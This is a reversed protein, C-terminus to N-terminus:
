FKHELRVYVQRGYGDYLNFNFPRTNDSVLQPLKGEINVAGLMIKSGKIPPMWSVQLDSTVYSGVFGVSAQGNSGIMNTNLTAGFAGRKWTNSLVAREKPLGFTGKFETGNQEYKLVQSYTLSHRFDGLGAYKHQFVANLDLGEFKWVGENTAGRTIQLIAGNAARTISLGAPIARTDTGNNRNVISQASVNSIVGDIQTSWYTAGLGISRTVDWVGGMSWQKAKESKLQPNSIVLGNIQFSPKVTGNCVAATVGDALCHRLDVVSDASFSPKQTLQPLTPASFGEGASARLTLNSMPQWRISAKPSTDSGYDSYSEHRAAVTM